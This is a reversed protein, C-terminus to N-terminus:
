KALQPLELAQIEGQPVGVQIRATGTVTFSLLPNHVMDCHAPVANWCGSQVITGILKGYCDGPKLGTDKVNFVLTLDQYGNIKSVYENVPSAETGTRGFTFTEANHQTFPEYYNLPDFQQSYLITVVLQNTQPLIVRPSVELNVQVTSGWSPPNLVPPNTDTSSTNSPAAVVLEAASLVSVAM